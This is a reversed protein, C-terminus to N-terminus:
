ISRLIVDLALEWHRQDIRKEREEKYVRPVCCEKWLGLKLAKANGREAVQFTDERIDAQSAGKNGNM